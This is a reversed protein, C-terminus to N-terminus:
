INEDDIDINDNEVEDSNRVKFNSLLNDLVQAQGSLEESAAASEEATASNTQVVQSIQEIGITIQRISDAQESSAISIENILNVSKKAGTVISELSLATEDAIKKGDKVALKASEILETTNKAAEASKNALNRVEDAVVVFGKGAVGARAAEVAANLALINTQFAIDEITKIIDSIKESTNNIQTMAEVLEHMQKDGQIVISNAQQSTNKAVNANNANNKVNESIENITASLEEISSAQETAGESLAQSASAVQESGSSVQNSSNKIELLTESLSSIIKELSDKISVYDGVYDQEITLNLDGKSISNLVSSIEGIYSRLSAITQILSDYLIGVEDKSNIKKMDSTIDGKSLLQLRKAINTIPESLSKSMRFAIIVGIILFILSSILLGWITYKISGIMENTPAVVGFSWGDTGDIPHYYCIRKANDYRYEETNSKGEIMKKYVNSATVLSEDNKALEIINQMNDVNEQNKYAITNGVKDLIFISGTEGITLNNIINSYTDSSLTASVVGNYNNINNVKASLFIKVRGNVDPQPSSIVTEGAEAKKYVDYNSINKGMKSKDTSICYGMENTVLLSEFGYKECRKNLISLLQENTIKPDGIFSEAAVGEIIIKYKEISKEVATQTVVGISKIDDQVTQKISKYSCLMGTLLTVVLVGVLLLGISVLM